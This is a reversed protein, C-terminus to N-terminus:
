EFSLTQLHQDKIHYHFFSSNSSQKDLLFGTRCRPIYIFIQRLLRYFNHLPRITSKRKVREFIQGTTQCYLSSTLEPSKSVLNEILEDSQQTPAHYNSERYEVSMDDLENNLLVELTEAGPCSTRLGYM